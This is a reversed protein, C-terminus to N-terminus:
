RAHGATSKGRQFIGQAFRGLSGNWDIRRFDEGYDTIVSLNRGNNPRVEVALVAAPGGAATPKLRM